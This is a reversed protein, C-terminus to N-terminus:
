CAVVFCQNTQVITCRVATREGDSNYRRDTAVVMRMM